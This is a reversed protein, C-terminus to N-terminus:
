QSATTIEGFTKTFWEDIMRKEYRLPESTSYRNFRQLYTMDNIDAVGSAITKGDREIAYRFKMTPWDAGGRLIRLERAQARTPELRGALDVDLIDIKLTEGKPLKGSLKEFHRTLDRQPETREWEATPFDIYKEPAIFAVKADAQAHSAFTVSAAFIGLAAFKLPSMGSMTEETMHVYFLRLM